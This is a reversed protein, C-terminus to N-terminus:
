AAAHTRFQDSLMEGPEGGIFEILLNRAMEIDYDTDKDIRCWEKGMVCTLLVTVKARRGDATHAPIAFMQEILANMRDFCPKGLTVLRTHEKSEPMATVLDWRQKSTLPSSIAESEQRILEDRWILHVKYLDDDHAHAAEYQEFIEEELQLLASDDAPLAAVPAPKVTALALATGGAALGAAQSLFLRPSPIAPLLAAKVAANHEAVRWRM